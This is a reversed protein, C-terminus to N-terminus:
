RGQTKQDIYHNSSNNLENTEKKSDYKSKRNNRITGFTKRESSFVVENINIIEKARAEEEKLCKILSKKVQMSVTPDNMIGDEQTQEEQSGSIFNKLVGKIDFIKNKKNLEKEVKSKM